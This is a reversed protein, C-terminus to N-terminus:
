RIARVKPRDPRRECAQLFEQVHSEGYLVRRGVKYYHLRGSCRMRWATIRSIGVRNAFEQETFTIRCNRSEPPAIDKESKSMEIELRLFYFSVSM